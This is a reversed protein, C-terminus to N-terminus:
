REVTKSVAAMALQSARGNRAATAPISGADPRNVAAQGYWCPGWRLRTPATPNSGVIEQERLVASELSEWVGFVLAGLPLRVRVDAM